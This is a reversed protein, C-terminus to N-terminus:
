VSEIIKEIAAHYNLYFVAEDSKSKFKLFFKKSDKEDPIFDPELINCRKCLNEILFAVGFSRQNTFITEVGDYFFIIGKHKRFPKYQLGEEGRVITISFEELDVTIFTTTDRQITISESM